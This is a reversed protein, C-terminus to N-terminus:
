ERNRVLAFDVVQGHAEKYREWGPTSAPGTWVHALRSLQADSRHSHWGAHPKHPAEVSTHFSPVDTRLIPTDTHSPDDDSIEPRPQNCLIGRSMISTQGM